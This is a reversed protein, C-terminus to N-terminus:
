PAAATIQLKELAGYGFVDDRGPAGLDIAQSQLTALVREAGGPQVDRTLMAARAAVRPAAFSTGTMTTEGGGFRPVGLDVGYAAFSVQAGRQADIAIRGSADIATVGIVGPYAAPYAAPAAPGGNGVAAVIVHGRAIMATVAAELVANPPGALSMTVVPTDKEALWALARAISEASGGEAKGGYIDALYLRAGRAAGERGVLLAAIATGHLSPLAESGAFGRQEIRARSLDTHAADAGSDVAGIRCGACDSAGPALAGAALVAGGSPDYLHNLDYSGTPDLQRLRTLLSRSSTNDPARLVVLELGLPDLRDRRVVDLGETKWLAEAADTPATALIEGRIARSDDPMREILGAIDRDIELPRGVTDRADNLAERALRSRERMADISDRSIERVSPTLRDPVWPIPLSTGGIDLAPATGGLALALLLFTAPRRM